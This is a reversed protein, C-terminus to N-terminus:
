APNARRWGATLQYIIVIDITIILVSWLPYLGMWTLQSLANIGVLVVGAWRAWEAGWGLGFAVLILLVGLIAVIWGWATINDGVLLKGNVVALASDNFVAILGWFVNLAGVLGMVIAAFAVWGGIEIDTPGYRGPDPDTSRPM